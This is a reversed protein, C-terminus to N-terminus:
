CLVYKHYDKRDIFSIMHIVFRRTVPNRTVLILCAHAGKYMQWSVLFGVKCSENRMTAHANQDCGVRGEPLLQRDTPVDRRAEVVPLPYQSLGQVESVQYAQESDQM